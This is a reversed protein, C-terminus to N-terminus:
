GCYIGCSNKQCLRLYWCQACVACFLKSFGDIMIYFKYVSEVSEFLIVRIFTDSRHIDLLQHELLRCLIRCWM